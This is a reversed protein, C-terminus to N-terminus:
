SKPQAAQRVVQEDLGLAQAIQEISLGLGLLQPITELKGEQIGEQRGEQRGEQKGEAFVDQYFRTQKLENLGFMKGIEEQSLRPLKYILITEILQIIERITTVDPIQQRASNVIEVAKITATSEPEIILKVTEIGISSAEISSLEDLYVRTVRQSNLLETYRETDGTDVSRNPFIVVGRWNNTLETKDLYNFIETFLRSYFKKDPQFQVEAFYIPLDPTNPLFVGDIRFALQKVEVSSFQYASALQPPQNILEFFTSPISQFIRYFISDTKM